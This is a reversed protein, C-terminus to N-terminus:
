WRVGLYRMAQTPAELWDRLFDGVPPTLRMARLEDAAVFRAELVATDGGLRPEQDPDALDAAIIVHVVHKRYRDMDDSIAEVLAVPAGPVVALDLEERVERVLAEALTEGFAVGGGPLLWYPRGQRDQRVLL